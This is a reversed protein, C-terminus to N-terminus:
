ALVRYRPERTERALEVLGMYHSPCIACRLFEPTPEAATRELHDAAKRAVDLLDRKGTARHHVCAASMLHGLCYAEFQLPDRFPAAADGQKQRIQIRTHLYGDPRQAARIARVADDILPLLDADRTVAFLHCAAELTKNFDGDNFAAGRHRGEVQGAAVVFNVLYQSPDTGNMIRWLYPVTATRCRDFHAKWFGQTWRAEDPGVPRPGDAAVLNATVLATAATLTFRM